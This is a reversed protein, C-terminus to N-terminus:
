YDMSLHFLAQHQQALTLVRELSQLDSHLSSIFIDPEGGESTPQSLTHALLSHVVQLGEEPHFWEEAPVEIAAAEQGTQEAIFDAMAEANESSFRELGAFASNEQFVAEALAKGATETVDFGPVDKNLVPYISVGM